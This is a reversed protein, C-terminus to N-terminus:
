CAYPFNHVVIVTKVREFTRRVQQIEAAYQDRICEVVNSPLGTDNDQEFLTEYRVDPLPQDRNVARRLGKYDDMSKLPFYEQLVKAFEEKSLTKWTHGGHDEKDAKRLLKLLGDLIVQEGYYADEPLVGELISSFIQCEADFSYRNVGFMINYAMEIANRGKGYKQAFFQSLFEQISSPTAKKERDKIRKAWFEKLFLVIKPRTINRNKVKGTALLYPPVHSGKGQCILFKRGAGDAEAKSVMERREADYEGVHDADSQM